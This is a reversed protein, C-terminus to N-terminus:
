EEKLDLINDENNRIKSNNNNDVNNKSNDNDENNRIKSNDNGNDVTNKSNNYYLIGEYYIYLAYALLSLAAVILISRIHKILIINHKPVWIDFLSFMILILSIMLITFLRRTDKVKEWNIIFLVILYGFSLFNGQFMDDELDVTQHEVNSLNIGYIFLPILLFIWGFLGSEWFKLLYIIILWIIAAVMYIYQISMCIYHDYHKGPRKALYHLPSTDFNYDYDINENMNENNSYDHFSNM